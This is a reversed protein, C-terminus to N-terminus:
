SAEKWRKRQAAAMRKRIEASFTRKKKAPAASGIWAPPRGRRPQGISLRSLSALVEDIRERESRLENIYKLVNM